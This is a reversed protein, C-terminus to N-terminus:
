VRMREHALASACVRARACVCVCACVDSGSVCVSGCKRGQVCLIFGSKSKSGELSHFMSSTSKMLSPHTVCVCVILVSLVSLMSLVSRVSLVCVSM